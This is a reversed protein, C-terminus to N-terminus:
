MSAIALLMVFWIWSKKRITEYTSVVFGIAFLACMVGAAAASPQFYPYFTLGLSESM